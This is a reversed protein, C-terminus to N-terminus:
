KKKVPKNQLQDVYRHAAKRIFVTQKRFNRCQSCIMLHLSMEVREPFSLKKDMAQSVLASIERCNRM